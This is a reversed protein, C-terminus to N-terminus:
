ARRLIQEACKVAGSATQQEHSKRAARRSDLFDGIAQLDALVEQRSGRLLILEGRYQMFYAGRQNKAIGRCELKLM